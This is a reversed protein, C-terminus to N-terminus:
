EVLVKGTAGASRVPYTGKKRPVFRLDVTRGAEVKVTGDEIKAKDDPAVTGSGFLGLASFDQAKGGANVFHLEYDSGALLEITRPTFGDDKMTITILQIHASAATTLAALLALTRLIM